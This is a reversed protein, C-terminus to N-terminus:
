KNSPATPQQFKHILDYYDVHKGNTPQKTGITQDGNIINLCKTRASDSGMKLCDLQQEKYSRPSLEKYIKIGFYVSVLMCAMVIFINLINLYKKM